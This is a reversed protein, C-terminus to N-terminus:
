SARKAEALPRLKDELYGVYDPDFPAELLEDVVPLFFHLARIRPLAEGARFTRRAVAVVMAAKVLALPIRRRFLARACRRDNRSTVIATGPLWLYYDLLARVYDREGAPDSACGKPNAGRSDGYSSVPADVSSAADDGRVVSRVARRRTDRTTPHRPTTTERETMRYRRHRPRRRVLASPFAVLGSPLSVLLEM